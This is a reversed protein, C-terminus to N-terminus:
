TVYWPKLRSLADEIDERIEDTHIIPDTKGFLGCGDGCGGGCVM